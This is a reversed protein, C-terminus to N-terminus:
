LRGKRMLDRIHDSYDGNKNFTFGLYKFNQVEEIMEKGWKWREMKEKRKRNFVVVKTKETNLILDRDKCFKKFIAMMEILAERNKVLLVTDDAYALSWIRNKGLPVGGLGKRKMYRDVNAIYLNFLLPSLVCGQRVGKKVEFSNSLGEKTRVAMKTSEYIKELRRILGKEIEKEKLIEWLKKRNVNDFAAKFDVFMAYVKGEKSRKERQVIHNLIFINDITGRGKRFGGQNEPLMKKEEVEKELRGRLVEAYIKYATCLLSIGRYNETKECDGKKYIPVVVSSNWDEPIVGNRWVMKLVDTLGNKITHGGFRWAEMPIEDMGAAKKLKVVAKGIEEEELELEEKDQWIEMRENSGKKEKREEKDEDEEGGELLEMFYKKWDEKDINNEVWTKKGRKQKYIEM